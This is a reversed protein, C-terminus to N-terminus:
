RTMTWSTRVANIAQRPIQVLDSSRIRGINSAAIASTPTAEDATCAPFLVGRSRSARGENFSRVVSAPPRLDCEPCAGTTEKVGYMVRHKQADALGLGSRSGSYQAAVSTLHGERAGAIGKPRPHVIHIPMMVRCYLLVVVSPGCSATRDASATER